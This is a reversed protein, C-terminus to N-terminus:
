AGGHGHFVAVTVNGDTTISVGTDAQWDLDMFYSGDAVVPITFLATGGGDNVTAVGKTAGCAVHIGYIKVSEGSEIEQATQSIAVTTIKTACHM